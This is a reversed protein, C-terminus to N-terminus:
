RARRGTTRNSVGPRVPGIRRLGHGPHGARGAPQHRGAAARRALALAETGNRAEGNEDAAMVRAAYIVMPYNDPEIELAARFQAVAEADHGGKFLLKGMQFRPQAYDPDLRAAEALESMAEDAQGVEALALGLNYHSPPSKPNLQVARRCYTLAAEPQGSESLLKGINNYIEARDPNLKLVTQYERLAATSNKEAEYAAGLNLHPLANDPTVKLAHIFLSQSDRWYTLQIETLILCALLILLAGAAMPVRLFPYRGVRDNAFFVLALFIGILPFYTYRDAMSQGGVQVLGIVPVLTGLFWFWGVLLYPYRRRALCVAVSVLMLGAAIAMVWFWAIGTTLPYYVALHAPFFSKWLYAAYAWVANELRFGLPVAALPVVADNKQALFTIVCSFAALLFFPWKEAALRFFAHSPLACIARRQLPWFDLLLMVGPLTVLMPKSMLGLAFGFVALWYGRRDNGKAYRVYALLTLLAFCTSLVDKRESIWAVSEVHLPHWAFLAGILASPWLAGTMRWWLVYLLVANATHLLVNVLHHGGPNLRFLECDAMHSLWTVPHWNSAHLTTFAWQAGAWTLGKQVMPNHTVYDDDDYNVFDNRTAPLYALITALALLLGIVRPRSMM